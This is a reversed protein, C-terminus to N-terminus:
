KVITVNHTYIYKGPKVGAAFNRGGCYLRAVRKPGVALTEELMSWMPGSGVNTIVHMGARIQNAYVVLDSADVGRALAEISERTPVPTSGSVIVEAGNEARFHFCEETSFDTQMVEVPECLPLSKLYDSVDGQLTDLQFGPEVDYVQKGSAVYMSVEPCAGGGGGGGGSTAEKYVASSWFVPSMVLSNQDVCSFGLNVTPDLQDSNTALTYTKIFVTNGGVVATSSSTPTSSSGLTYQTTTGNDRMLFTVTNSVNTHNYVTATITLAVSGTYSPGAPSVSFGYEVPPTLAAGTLQITAIQQNNVYVYNAPGTIVTGNLYTLTGQITANMTATITTSSLPLTANVYWGTLWGSSIIPTITGLTIGGSFTVSLGISNGTGWVSGQQQGSIPKTLSVTFQIASGDAVHSLPSVGSVFPSPNVLYDIEIVYQLGGNGAPFVDYSKNSSDYWAVDKATITLSTVPASTFAGGNYSLTLTPTASSGAAAAVTLLGAYATNDGSLSFTAAAATPNDVAVPFVFGTLHLSGATRELLPIYPVTTYVANQITLTLNYTSGQPQWNNSGTAVPTLRLQATGATGAAPALIPSLIAQQYVAAVGYQGYIGEAAGGCVFSFWNHTDQTDHYPLNAGYGTVKYCGGPAGPPAHFPGDTYQSPMTGGALYVYAGAASNFASILSDDPGSRDHVDNYYVIVSNGPHNSANDGDWPRPDGSAATSQLIPMGAGSNTEEVSPVPLLTTPGYWSVQVPNSTYVPSHSSMAATVTDTGANAGVLPITLVGTGAIIDVPVQLSYTRPNAGTVTVVITEIITSM